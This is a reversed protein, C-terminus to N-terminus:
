VRLTKGLSCVNAKNGTVLVQEVGITDDTYNVISFGHQWNANQVYPPNLDCACGNEYNFFIEEPRNGVAPQRQMTSGLRHVHNTLTSSYTKEFEGRASMGGNKRVVTGHRVIFNTPLIVEDVLKVRCWDAQPYFINEFKLLEQVRPMGALPPIKESLYRWLRGDQDNGSHNANTELIEADWPETIDHLIKLFKHYQDTETQLDYYHRPDKPYKSIALMDLTDGNLIIKEPQLQRVVEFFINLTNWDEMGFHTDGIVVAIKNGEKRVPSVKPAPYKIPALQKLFAYIEDETTSSSSVKKYSSDYVVDGDDDVIEETVIKTVSGGIWDFLTSRPVGLIKSIETNSKGQSRLEYAQEILQQKTNETSM